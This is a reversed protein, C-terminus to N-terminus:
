PSGRRFGRAIARRGPSETRPTTASPAQRQLQSYVTVREISCNLLRPASHRDLLEARHQGTIEGAGFPHQRGSSSMALHVLADPRRAGFHRLGGAARGLVFDATTNPFELLM